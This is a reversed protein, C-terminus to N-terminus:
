TWWPKKTRTSRAFKLLDEVVAKCNRGHKEITKLDDHIQTGPPHDRLLLQTYGLM